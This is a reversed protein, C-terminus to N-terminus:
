SKGKALKEDLLTRLRRLESRSLGQESVMHMLLM